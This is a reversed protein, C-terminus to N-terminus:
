YPGNVSDNPEIYATRRTGAPSQTVIDTRRRTTMLIASLVLGVAGVIMLIVGATGFNFGHTNQHNANIAFKLMAGLAILLLSGGIRM